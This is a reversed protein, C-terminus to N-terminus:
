DHGLGLFTFVDARDVGDGGAGGAAFFAHFGAVIPDVEPDALAATVYTTAIRRFVLVRGLVEVVGLV